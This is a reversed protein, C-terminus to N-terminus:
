SVWAVTAMRGSTGDRRFSHFLTNQEYTCYNGGIVQSCGVSALEAAALKYLDALYKGKADGKIFCKENDAARSVFAELVDEGVEFRGPGIAPGLWAQLQSGPRFHAVANAVIGKALGRWGAHVVALQQGELDCIVVPLCDATLVALVTQPTCTYAGDAATDTSQDVNVVVNSHTQNLWVPEAPLAFSQQLRRRNEEVAHAEDGVHLGLNLADYPPQSIGGARTSTLATVNVPLQWDPVVCTLSAFNSM